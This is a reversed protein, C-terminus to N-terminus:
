LSLRVACEVHSTQPFMDFPQVAEISYGKSALIALDRALTAPDCSVYVITKPKLLTLKDLFSSECGKRPPNLIAVDLSKLTGILDEAPGCKFDVNTIQNLKANENADIIAVKVSEIGIVQKARSSLILALTGVGCYADLVTEDGSLQAFEVVKDYLHEAQAPNVQFFSAPSIKFKLGHLEEEIWGHGAITRFDSSLVANGPGRNLNHVVGKIEPCADILKKGISEDIKDDSVLVVLVQGTKVATKILVHKYRVLDLKRIVQFVDEGLDCHIYCKEIEVIDHSNRAYLGLHGVGSVPLQIKNRYYLPLPSPLCPNVKLDSFGGIRELADIVRQQKAELQKEYKLHMIQCGGCRGFLPCIPEVRDPSVVLTKIV